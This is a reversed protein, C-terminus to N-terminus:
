NHEIFAKYGVVKKNDGSGSFVNKVGFTLFLDDKAYTMTIGDPDKSNLTEKFGANTLQATYYGVFDQPYTNVQASEMYVGEQEIRRKGSTFLLVKRQTLDWQLGSYLKPLLDQNPINLGAGSPTPNLSAPPLTSNPSPQSEQESIIVESVEILNKEKTLNGTVIVQKGVLESLNINNTKVKLKWLSSDAAAMLYYVGQANKQITGQNVVQRHLIPSSNPFFIKAFSYTVGFTVGNSLILTTIIVATVPKVKFKFGFDMGENSMIKKWWRKLYTVPNTVKLLPPDEDKTDSKPNTQILPPLSPFISNNAADPPSAHPNPNIDSNVPHEYPIFHGHADRPRNQAVESHVSDPHPDPIDPPNPTNPLASIPQQTPQSSYPNNPDVPNSHPNFSSGFSPPTPNSGNDDPPNKPLNDM